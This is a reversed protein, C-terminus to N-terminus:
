RAVRKRMGLLGTLGAGLLFLSAPEPIPSFDFNDFDTPNVPLWPANSWTGFRVMATVAGEPATLYGSDSQIYLDRPGRQVDAEWGLPLVLNRNADLWYFGIYTGWDSGATGTPIYTWGTMRYQVGPTIGVDQYMGGDWYNRANHTGHQPNDTVGFINNNYEQTWGTTYGSEGSIEFDGNYLLNASATSPLNLILFVAAIFLLSKIKMTEQKAKFLAEM